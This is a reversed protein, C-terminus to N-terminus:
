KRSVLATANNSPLDPLRQHDQTEWLATRRRTRPRHGTELRGGDIRAHGERDCPKGVNKVQRCARHTWVHRDRVAQRHWPSEGVHDRTEHRPRPGAPRATQLGTIGYARYRVPRAQCVISELERLSIVRGDGCFYNIEAVVLHTPIHCRNRATLERIRSRALDMAKKSPWCAPYRRSPHRRSSMMRHHFGLFDCGEEGSALGVIRTKATSVQLGLEALIEQLAALAARSRDESACCIVEDDAYRV